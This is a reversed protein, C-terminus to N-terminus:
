PFIVELLSTNPPLLSIHHESYRPSPLLTFTILETPSQRSLAFPVPYINVPADYCDRAAGFPLAVVAKLPANHSTSTQLSIQGGFCFTLAPQRQGSSDSLESRGPADHLPSGTCCPSRPAPLRFALKPRLMACPVTSRRRQKPVPPSSFYIYTYVGGQRGGRCGRSRVSPRVSPRRGRAPGPLVPPSLLLSSPLPPSLAAGDGIGAQGRRRPGIRATEDLASRPGPRLPSAPRGGPIYPAFRAAARLRSRTPLPTPFPEPHAARLRRPSPSRPATISSSRVM